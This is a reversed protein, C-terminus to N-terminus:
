IIIIIIIIRGLKNEAANTKAKLLSYKNKKEPKEENERNLPM